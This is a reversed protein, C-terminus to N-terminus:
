SVVEPTVPESIKKADAKESAVEAKADVKDGEEKGKKFEGLSKGLSHALEPLKKGGFLILIIALVLLIQWPGWAM